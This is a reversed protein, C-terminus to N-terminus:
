HKELPRNQSCRDVRVNDPITMPVFVVLSSNPIEDIGERRRRGVGRNSIPPSSDTEM